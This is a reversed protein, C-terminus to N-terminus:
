VVFWRRLARRVGDEDRERGPGDFHGVGLVRLLKEGRWANHIAFQGPPAVAPDFLALAALLPARAHSAAISADYYALTEPVHGQRHVYARVAEGSGVTPCGLRLPWHGFSPVNLHVGQMLPEWPAALAGIGGGFSIGAYGMWVADPFLQRAARFALWLDDVCHGLIYDDRSDIGHLVHRMPDEPLGPQRSRSMGRFCPFLVAGDGIPWGWDPTDRGGYGHGVIWVRRVAGNRPTLAWGGLSLGDASTYRFDHVRWAGRFGAHSLCPCPDCASVRAHRATWYPAFDDPEPPPPIALLRALDYGYSPDFAYPHAIM